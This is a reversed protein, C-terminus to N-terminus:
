KDREWVLGWCDSQWSVVYETVLHHRGFTQRGVLRYHSGEAGHWELNRGATRRCHHHVSEGEIEFVGMYSFMTKHLAAREADDAGAKRNSATILTLLDVKLM